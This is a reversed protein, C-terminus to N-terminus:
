YTLVLGKELYGRALHAARGAETTIDIAMGSLLGGQTGFFDAFARRFGRGVVYREGLYGGRGVHPQVSPDLAFHFRSRWEVFVGRRASALKGGALLRDVERSTLFQELVARDGQSIAQDAVQVSEHVIRQMREILEIRQLTESPAAAQISSLEAAEAAATRTGVGAALSSAAADATRTVASGAVRRALTKGTEEAAGHLAQLGAAIRRSGATALRGVGSQTARRVGERVAQGAGSQAIRSAVSKVAQGAGSNALRGAATRVVAGITGGGGRAIASVAVGAGSLVGGAVGGILAAKAVNAATIPRHDVAAETVEAVAGGAAGGVIGGIVAAAAAGVVPGALGATAVTVVTGVVVAAGIGAWQGWSLHGTPDSLNVPNNRVYAYVNTGDALGAPDVSTWRGLWPAYYRAGHYYLGSETDREKSTFRYRKPTETQNRVAQYSTTGFPHHEEYSIIQAHDDLELTSSGLHNLLQFRVLQEHSGSDVRTEILAVRQKDDMVHLTERQLSVGRGSGNFQRHIEFSGIYIREEVATGNPLEIVKRVRQGNADYVYYAKGGAGRDVMRLRDQFDWELKPIHPMATMNGHADYSYPERRPTAGEGVQSESLRNNQKESELLSPERYVYRRGWGPNTSDSGRHKVEVLNGVEDYVYREVYRGMANGDGPHLLGGWQIDKNFQMVPAAGLQGLHERGTAEILRSIADYTYESSPEVRKNRFYITQQALDGIRAVNGSPDYTYSLNQIQCGLWGSIEPEPCDQDFKVPDRTSVIHIPRFTFPDYSCSTKVGNGYEITTRQGKANYNIGRVLPVWSSEGRLAVELSVLLNSENYTPRITSNDPTTIRIARNLADYVTATTFRDNSLFAETSTAIIEGEDLERFLSWDVPERYASALQRSTRIANGKFDNLESIVVGAQDYHRHYRTRLNLELADPHSEGYVTVEVLAEPGADQQVYVKSPRRLVDYTVRTQYNRSDWSRVTKGSVDLLAVTEGADASSVRAKRSLMDYDCSMVLRGAADIVERENGEIDLRVRTASFEDVPQSKGNGTSSYQCRNHTVTIFTRGLSDRHSVHPTAAHVAAKRAVNQEDKGLSGNERVGHWTPLYEGDRLRRFFGGVDGDTKPDTILITDSVDWTAERWPDFVVKEWTHDAHLTAVVREISDYLLMTGTGNKANFEFEHKESFFPEYQRVPKGKNNFITWGSGVWRQSVLSSRGVIPDPEAQAKKQIERGFGDSYSFAQQIMTQQALALDSAHTERRLTHVGAPQPETQEKTRQYAALDYTLRTTAVGLLEQAKDLPKIFDELVVSESLDPEFGALTDGIAEEPKGMVATGTEMGLIDLAVASRNRNVDTELDPQLVRYNNGPKTPNVSNDPRREGITIRNGLADRTEVGLLDYKDFSIVTETRREECYFPDRFRCSRFFHQRAYALEQGQSDFEGPSFYVRGSPTWWSGNADLDVYGGEKALIGAPDPLLTKITGGALSRQYVKKLFGTTFALKYSEYPLAMSELGGVGVPGSLDNKRYLTRASELLRRFPETATAGSAYTDEYPLDHTGDSAAKTKALMEEFRFLNTIFTQKADPVVNILEWTSTESPLATRHIDDQLVSNTYSSETYTLLIQKQKQKDEATLVPDFDDFRRGYGIAVSKLVNGCTDVELTMAHGVRPDAAIRMDAPVPASPDALMGGSVKYLKREYHFDITERPHSFFVLHRNEGLPQFCEITYNRESVSYPRDQAETGDLGYVEQRLISGKLARCSERLEDGSFNWRLSRTDSISITSPFVTDPILMAELQADTLGAVGAAEGGERYYEHEFQKSVRGEEFYAGAHFWTKTLVPPVHSSTDINDGVPFNGSESLAAFEETDWQDVRGFGRFEREIGDYFGHHYVCRTVFRNRSIWDYTEVREVVHVPFPLRTIWPQTAAKDALYFKTSAAYKVITEAGLNNRVTTLLHPKQGGMLDIYRLAKGSDIPLSSSWVLCATGNGLLDTINVSSVDGTAPFQPIGQPPGFGNGSQNFWVAVRDSGLYVIDMTGTGDIDAPRVRKQDFLDPSDFLPANDMTIKAGFRGYGINPWYCIEGNRIRVLDKLGDGSADALYISQTGDAFVLAPGEDEDFPKRVTESPGFGQKALSPHWRFVENETIFIEAFGDGDLDVTRLNPDKWDINPCSAFPMFTQWGAEENREYYGPVPRSFQVLSLRGDGALDILQQGTRGSLDALSPKLSVLEAPEFRACVSGDPGPLSSINRKYFWGTGQESLIGPSGESDLDVWQYRSGDVGSPLNELSAPDALHITEDIEAKTYSFELPPLANSYYTGDSQLRYGVQKISQVYAYILNLSGAPQEDFSYTLDTSRVLYDPTGLEEPFHHFMLVRSCIRYTRVEFTSRYRSFPDPRCRWLVDETPRPKSKNHEGYDFVVEFCWDNPFAPSTGAYYPTRNCYKIRKLYRNATIQRNREHLSLPVNAGDEAKYEYVALNGKDDYTAALLWTFVRSPDSADAIRSSSDTGFLSTINDKAISRWFIEGTGDNRWREIRAFLGEIRPRYRQVTFTQGNRSATYYDKEWKDGVPLLVPVLDEAESLIFVDSEETDLYRPLGKDTKRTINPVSLRWGFGFPGNGAGSDYSLSLNPTFNSRGPSTFVPVSLTGTGNVPNVGFKEGISKIAGGGKPLSISPAAFPNPENDADKANVAPQTSKEKPM